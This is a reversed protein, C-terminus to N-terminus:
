FEADTCFIREGSGGRLNEMVGSVQYESVRREFQNTKGQLSIMEMWPFPNKANYQNELGLARLLRDAVFEVYQIMLDKNMGVLDVSLSDRVFEKEIEVAERIISIPVTDDPKNKLMKWMLCAFDTHLGEDRSILSNSFCLGPMLGQKKLWFIACFSASFFIGEVASFAVVRHSFPMDNIWKLAWDAKKKICPIEKIANFLREKEEGSTFTDILLSYTESHINEMMIQFGYFFRAETIQVESAFKEALNENVIGDSAAFFALIYKIFKQHDGNLRTKWHIIDDTLNVEGPTWFSAVAKKYFEWVEPHKIPYLVFRNPNERLLPETIEKSQGSM